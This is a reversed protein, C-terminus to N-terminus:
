IEEELKINIEKEIKDNNSIVFKFKLVFENKIIHERPISIKGNYKIKLTETFEKISIPIEIFDMTEIYGYGFIMNNNSNITYEYNEIITSSFIDDKFRIENISITLFNEKFSAIGDIYYDEPKESVLNYTYTKNSNQYIFLSTIFVLLITLISITIILKTKKKKDNNPEEIKEEIVEELKNLEGALLEDTTIGLIKSVENIITIDPLTTGCEWKSVAKFGVGVMDGLDQQTLGKKKRLEAILKGIKNNDM